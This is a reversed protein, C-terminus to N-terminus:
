NIWIDIGIVYSENDVCYLFSISASLWLVKLTLHSSQRWGALPLLTYWTDCCEIHVHVGVLVVVIVFVYVVSAAVAVIHSHQVGPRKCGMFTWVLRVTPINMTWRGIQQNTPIAGYGFSVFSLHLMPKSRCTCLIVLQRLIIHKPRKLGRMMSLPGFLIGFSGFLIQQATIFGLVCFIDCCCPNIFRSKGPGKVLGLCDDNSKPFLRNRPWVM